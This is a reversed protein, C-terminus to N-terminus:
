PPPPPPCRHRTLPRASFAANASVAASNQRHLITEWTASLVFGAAAESDELAYNPRMEVRGDTTKARCTGYLGGKCAGAATREAKDLGTPLV